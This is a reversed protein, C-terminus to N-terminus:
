IKTMKTHKFTEKLNVKSSLFGMEPVKILVKYSSKYLLKSWVVTKLFDLNYMNTIDELPQEVFVQTIWENMLQNLGETIRQSFLQNFM